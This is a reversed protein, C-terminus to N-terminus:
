SGHLIKHLITSRQKMLTAIDKGTKADRDFGSFPVDVNNELDDPKTVSAPTVTFHGFKHNIKDIARQLNDKKDLRTFLDYNRTRSLEYASVCAFKAEFNLPINKIVAGFIDQTTNSYFPLRTEFGTGLFAKDKLFININKAYLEKTRLRLSVKECLKYIISFFDKGSKVETFTEGHSVSKADDFFASPDVKTYSQGRAALYLFRGQVNGFEKKLKMFSTNRLTPFDSIGMMELRAFIRRGIGCIDTLPFKDLVEIYKDPTLYVIGNPKQLDSGFKAMLKNDAIGVSCTIVSGLEELMRKKIMIVVDIPNYNSKIFYTNTIDIFAEDISFPEVCPSFEHFIKLFIATKEVYKDFQPAVFVIGPCMRMADYKNTGTKVGFKKAEKSAAIVFTGKGKGMVAIPKNRLEPDSDQAVSAFYSNMDLHLIIRQDM